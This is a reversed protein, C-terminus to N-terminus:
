DIPTLFRVERPAAYLPEAISLYRRYHETHLVENVFAGSDLWCRGASGTGAGTKADGSWPLPL